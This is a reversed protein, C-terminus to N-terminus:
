FKYMLGVALSQKFQTIPSKHTVGDKEWEITTNDDYILHTKFVVNLFSNVKMTITTQWDVDVNQPNKLYNSFLDLKTDLNVNKFIDQKFTLVLNAGLESKVTKGDKIKNGMEDYEAGEAFDGTDAISQDLVFILKSSIPSLMASFHKNPKYDMGLGWTLYGPAMLNSIATTHSKDYDYGQSFQSKFNLYGTYFWNEKAQKGIKSNLEIRDDTKKIIENNEQKLGYELDLKNEWSWNNKNRNAFLQLFSTGNINNDGGKAWNYFGVESINIGIQGGMKWIKTTDQAMSLTSTVVLAIFFLLLKKM